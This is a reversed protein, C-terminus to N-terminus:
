PSVTSVYAGRDVVAHFRIGKEKCHQQLQRVYWNSITLDVVCIRPHVTRLLEEARPKIGNGIILIDLELPRDTQQRHLTKDRLLLIRLGNLQLFRSVTDQQFHPAALHRSMRYNDGVMPFRTSDTTYVVWKRGQRLELHSAQRDAYLVLEESTRIDVEHYLSNLLMSLGLIAVIMYSIFRPRYQLACLAVVFAALLFAQWENIWLSAVAGPLEQIREVSANMLQLLWELLFGLVKPLLPIFSLMLYGIGLYLICTTLPIVILNTLLFYVPFQHFYLLTLPATGIQAAVSVLMLDRLWQLPKAKVPIMAAMRPQFYVISTVAAYSLQFGVDFLYTPRILLMLFASLAITNYIQSRRQLSRGMAFLSFMTVSRIVSPSLGTLLAYIWLLLVVMLARPVRLRKKPFALSLLFDLMLYLIGVHLGSVALIHMAGANVFDSKLEADIDERYGLTLAALVAFEDNDLSLKRYLRLLKERSQRAMSLMSREGTQQLVQWRGAGVWGSVSVGQLYLYRAFDFAEPNLPKQVRSLKSQLLVHQGDQLCEAASDRQVYLWAKKQLVLTQASDHQKELMVLLQVSNTKISPPELIRATFLAPRDPSEFHTQQHERHSLGYGLLFFVLVVASGFFWRYRFDRTSKVCFSLAMLLLGATLLLIFTLDYIEVYQFCLIGLILPGLLRVFPNTPLFPM